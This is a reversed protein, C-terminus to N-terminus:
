SSSSADRKVEYQRSWKIILPVLLLTPLLWAVVGPLITNNVVLFATVAAIYSGIMRQLHTIMWFNRVRSKGTFNQYDQYVFIFSICGFVALVIGFYNSIMINYVGFVLFAAGFISMSITLLWDIIQVDSTAKKRVYRKGTLVMYATFVGVIFLFKNSHICTMGIALAATLLMTYFYILGLLQHRKNGKKAFLIYLGLLLSTSGCIIHATLLIDFLTMRSVPKLIFPSAVFILDIGKLSM